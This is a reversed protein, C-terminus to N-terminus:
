ADRGFDNKQFECSNINKLSQWTRLRVKERECEKLIVLKRTRVLTGKYVILLGFGDM